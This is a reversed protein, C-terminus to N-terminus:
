GETKNAEFQEGLVDEVYLMRVVIVLAVALPAGLLLGFSGALVGFILQAAIVYAPPLYLMSKQVYPSILYNDLMQTGLYLAIVLITQQPSQLVTVLFAPILALIPGFTPIFSGAAAIMALSLALPVGLVTLGIGTLSGVVVMSILRTFLWKQLADGVQYLVERIRARKERPILYLFGNIYTKPEAALFISLFITLILSSLFSLSSSM